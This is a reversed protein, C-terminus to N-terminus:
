LHFYDSIRRLLPHDQYDADLEADITSQAVLAIAAADLFRTLFRRLAFDADNKRQSFAPACSGLLQLCNTEGVQM